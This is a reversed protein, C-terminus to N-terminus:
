RPNKRRYETAKWACYDVKSLGGARDLSWEMIRMGTRSNLEGNPGIPEITHPSIEFYTFTGFLEPYAERGTIWRLAGEIADAASDAAFTLFSSRAGCEGTAEYHLVWFM